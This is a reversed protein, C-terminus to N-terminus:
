PNTDRLEGAREGQGAMATSVTDVRHIGTPTLQQTPTSPAGQFKLKDTVGIWM